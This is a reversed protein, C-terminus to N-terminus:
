SGRRALGAGFRKCGVLYSDLHSEEFESLVWEEDVILHIYGPSLVYTFSEVAEGEATSVSVPKRAYVDDEFLDLAEVTRQDLDNVLSGAVFCDSAKVIGPYVRDLLKTRKYNGLIAVQYTPFVGTVAQFVKRNLLSGYVFLNSSSLLIRRARCYEEDM